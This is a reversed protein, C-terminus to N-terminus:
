ASERGRRWDYTKSGDWPQKEAIARMECHWTSLMKVPKMPINYQMHGLFEACFIRILVLFCFLWNHTSINHHWQKGIWLAKMEQTSSILTKGKQGRGFRHMSTLLKINYPSSAMSSKPVPIELKTKWHTWMHMHNTAINGGQSLSGNPIKMRGHPSLNNSWTHQCYQELSCFGNRIWPHLACIMCISTHMVILSHTDCSKNLIM